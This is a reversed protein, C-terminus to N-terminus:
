VNKKPNSRKRKKEIEENEKKWREMWWHRAIVPM